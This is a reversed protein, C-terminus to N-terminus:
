GKDARSSLELLADFDGSIAHVKFKTITLSIICRLPFYYQYVRHILM